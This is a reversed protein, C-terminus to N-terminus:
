HASIKQLALEKTLVCWISARSIEVYSYQNAITHHLNSVALRSDKELLHSVIALTEDNVSSSPHGSHQEDHTSTRGGKFQKVLQQVARLSM